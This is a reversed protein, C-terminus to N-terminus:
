LVTNTHLNDAHGVWSLSQLNTKYKEGCPRCKPRWFNLFGVTLSLFVVLEIWTMEKVSTQHFCCKPTKWWWSIKQRSSLLRLFPLKCKDSPDHCSMWNKKPILVSIQRHLSFCRFAIWTIHPHYQHHPPNCTPLALNVNQISESTRISEIPVQNWM